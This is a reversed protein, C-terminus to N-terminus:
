LYAPYSSPLFVAEYKFDIRVQGGSVPMLLLIRNRTTPM